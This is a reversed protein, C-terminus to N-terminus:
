SGPFDVSFGAQVANPRHREHREFGSNSAQLRVSLTALYTPEFKQEFGAWTADLAKGVMAWVLFILSM